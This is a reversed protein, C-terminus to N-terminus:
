RDFRKGFVHEFLGHDGMITYAAKFELSSKLTRMIFEGGRKHYGCSRNDFMSRAVMM